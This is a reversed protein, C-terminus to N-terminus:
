GRGSTRLLVLRGRTGLVPDLYTAACLSLSCLTEVLKQDYRIGSYSLVPAAVNLAAMQRGTQQTHYARPALHVTEPKIGSGEKLLICIM